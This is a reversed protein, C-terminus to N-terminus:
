AIVMGAYGVVSSEDGSVEASSGYRVLRGEQAGLLQAAYLVAAAAGAGCMSIGMTDVLALLGKSNVAEMQEIAARDKLAASARTEYHTMDTSAVMLIRRDSEQHIAMAMSRGLDRVIEPDPDRMVIPVFTAKPNLLLIFPLLVEAAYERGHAEPDDTMFESRRLIDGALVEDVEIRNQPLEWIGRACLSTSATGRGTHNPGVVVFVDPPLLSGFTAGAIRGSYMWASHPSVVATARTRVAPFEVYSEAEELTSPYWSGAFQAPRVPAVSV